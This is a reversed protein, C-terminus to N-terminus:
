AKTQQPDTGAENAASSQRSGAGLENAAASPKDRTEGTAAAPMLRAAPFRLTFASGKGPESAIQLAGEHRLMIRKTIALGLGTGGTARSRGRDVRYFRESLRPLHEPSIGIGTDRVTLWGEDDRVTWSLSISGGEPTYRVANSLLNRVASEIEAGIGQVKKPGEVALEFSHRGGSLARAEDLLADLLTHVDIAEDSPRQGARELSSLTLLDDVLRQMTTSQRLISELHRRRESEDLDLTLLTEAFGAIVTVPTRIEHSVNAVFDSRMADLKAQETVDRSLVLKQDNDTRHIRIEFTRGPHAPLHLRVPTPSGSGLQALFEPQRIFHHIPRKTGFIGHLSEAADNSWVVHDFRDLVVLADPLQDVAAHIRELEGILESRTEREQRVLRALRAFVPRWPGFGTPIERNRPLSAWHHLQSLHIASFLSQIGFAIAMVWFAATPSVYL